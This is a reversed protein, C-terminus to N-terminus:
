KLVYILLENFTTKSIPNETLDEMALKNTYKEASKLLLEQISNIQPVDYLKLSKKM